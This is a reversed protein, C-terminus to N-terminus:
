KKKAFFGMLSKQKMHQSNNTKNSSSKKVKASKKEDGKENEEDSPVDEWVTVTETRLYGGVMTTKEVLKKRRKRQPKNNDSSAFADMAGRVPSAKAEPEPSPPPVEKQLRVPQRKVPVEEDDSEEDDAIFDDANGVEAPAVQNLKAPKQNEKKRAAPKSAAPKSVASKKGADETAKKQAKQTGFFSAASMAKAKADPKGPRVLPASSLTAAASAEGLGATRSVAKANEGDKLEDAPAIASVKEQRFRQDAVMERWQVMDREHSTEVSETGELSSLAFVSISPDEKKAATSTRLRFVIKIHLSSIQHAMKPHFSSVNHLKQSNV